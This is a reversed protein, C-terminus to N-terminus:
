TRSTTTLLNTPGDTTTKACVGGQQAGFHDVEDGFSGMTKGDVMVSTYTAPTTVAAPNQLETIVEVQTSTSPGSVPITYSNVRTVNELTMSYAQGTSTRTITAKM